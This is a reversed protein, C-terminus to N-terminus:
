QIYYFLFSYDIILLWNNFYERAEEVDEEIQKLLDEKEDFKVIERMKELIEVELVQNYLDGEFDLLYVEIDPRIGKIALAQYDQNQYRVKALYVGDALDDLEAQNDAKLNATKFGLGEGKVVIGLIKM